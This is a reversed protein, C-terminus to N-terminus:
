PGGARQPRKGAVMLLSPREPVRHAAEVIDRAIARAEDAEGIGPRAAPAEDGHAAEKSRSVILVAGREIENAEGMGDPRM